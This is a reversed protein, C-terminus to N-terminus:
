LAQLETVVMVVRVVQDMLVLLLHAVAGVLVLRLAMVVVLVVMVEKHHPLAQHIVAELTQTLRVAAQAAAEALVVMGVLIEM